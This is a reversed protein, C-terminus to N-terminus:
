IIPNARVRLGAFDRLAEAQSNGKHHFPDPALIRRGYLYLDQPDIATREAMVAFLIAIGAALHEGRQDNAGALLRHATDLAKDRSVMNIKDRDIRSSLSDTPM